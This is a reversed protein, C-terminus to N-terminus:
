DFAYTSPIHRFIAAVRAAAMVMLKFLEQISWEIM